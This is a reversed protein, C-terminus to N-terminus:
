RNNQTNALPNREVTTHRMTHALLPTVSWQIVHKIKYTLLPISSLYLQVHRQQDAYVCVLWSWLM